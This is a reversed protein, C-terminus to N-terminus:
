LSKRMAFEVQAFTLKGNTKYPIKVKRVRSAFLKHLYHKKLSKLCKKPNPGFILNFEMQKILKKVDPIGSQSFHTEM